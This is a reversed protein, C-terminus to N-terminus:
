NRHHLVGVRASKLSKVVLKCTNKFNLLQNEYAPTWSARDQVGSIIENVSLKVHEKLCHPLPLLNLNELSMGTYIYIGEESM